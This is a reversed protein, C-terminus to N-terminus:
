VAEKSSPQLEIAGNKEEWERLWREETPHRQNLTRTLFAIREARRREADPGISAARQEAERAQKAQMVYKTFFGLAYIDHKKETWFRLVPLIDREMDCGDLLWQRVPAYNAHAFSARYRTLLDVIPTLDPTM